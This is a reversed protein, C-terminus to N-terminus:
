LRSRFSASPKATPRPGISAGALFNRHLPAPLFSLLPPFELLSGEAAEPALLPRLPRFALM